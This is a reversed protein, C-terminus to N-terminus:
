EGEYLQAVEGIIRGLLVEDIEKTNNLVQVWNGREQRRGEHVGAYYEPTNKDIRLEALRGEM